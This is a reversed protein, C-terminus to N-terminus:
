KSHRWVPHCHIGLNLLSPDIGRAQLNEKLRALANPM